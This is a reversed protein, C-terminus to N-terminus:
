KYQPKRKELFAKVDEQFDSDSWAMLHLSEASAFPKAPGPLWWCGFATM